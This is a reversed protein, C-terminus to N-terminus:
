YGRKIKWILVDEKSVICMDHSYKKVPKTTKSKDVLCISLMGPRNDKPVGLREKVQYINSYYVVYDDEKIERGLMDEYAM